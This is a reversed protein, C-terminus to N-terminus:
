TCKNNIEASRAAPSAQCYGMKLNKKGQCLKLLLLHYVKLTFALGLEMQVQSSKSFSLSAAPWTGGPRRSAPSPVPRSLLSQKPAWM